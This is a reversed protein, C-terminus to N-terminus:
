EHGGGTRELEALLADAMEVAMQAMYAPDVDSWMVQRAAMNGQMAMAAMRERISMGNGDFDIHYEKGFQIAVPSAPMDGRNSM